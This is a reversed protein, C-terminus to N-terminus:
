YNYDLALGLMVRFFDPHKELVKIMHGPTDFEQAMVTWLETSEWNDPYLVGMYGDMYDNVFRPKEFMFNENQFIDVPNFAPKNNKYFEPKKSGLHSRLKKLKDLTYAKGSLWRRATFFMDQRQKEVTHMLEHFVVSKKPVTWVQNELNYSRLDRTLIEIRKLPNNGTLGKGKFMYMFDKISNKVLNKDKENQAATLTQEIKIPNSRDTFKTGVKPTVIDIDDILKDVYEKFEPTVKTIDRRVKRMNEAMKDWAKEEIDLMRSYQAELKNFENKLETAYKFKDKKVDGLLLKKRKNNVINKRKRIAIQANKRKKVISEYVLVSKHNERLFDDGKKRLRKFSASSTREVQAKAEEAAKLLSIDKFKVKEIDINKLVSKPKPANTILKHLAQTPTNGELQLMDFREARISGANGGGFFQAKTVRDAQALYDAYSPNEGKVDFAKRYFQEGKVNIKSKYKRGPKERGGPRDFGDEEPSIDIGARADTDEPDVLVVQCRCNVHVPWNPFSKRDKRLINDLPACVQCTRSDFAAVWEWRLDSSFQNDNWVQENVQRNMDQVATRAVAKAQAKLQRYADKGEFLLKTAPDLVGRKKVGTIMVGAIQDAIAQTSAGQLIGTRVTRDIIKLNSKIWPTMTQRFIAPKLQDVDQLGFLDILRTNNVKTNNIADRVSDQLEVTQLGGITPMGEIEGATGPFIKGTSIQSIMEKANKEMEPYGSRLEEILFQAFVNNGSQLITTVEAIMKAWEQDRLLTAEPLKLVKERVMAMIQKFTGDTRDLATDAINDLSFAQRIFIKLQKENM